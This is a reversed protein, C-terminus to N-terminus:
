GRKTESRIASEDPPWPKFKQSATEGASRYDSHGVRVFVRAARLQAWELAEELTEWSGQEVLGEEPDDILGRAREFPPLESMSTCISPPKGLKGLEGMFDQALWAIRVSRLENEM